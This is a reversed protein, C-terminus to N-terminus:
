PSKYIESKLSKGVSNEPESSVGFGITIRERIKKNKEAIFLWIVLFIIIITVAIISWFIIKGVSVSDSIEEDGVIITWIKSDVGTAGSIEVKVEYTGDDLDGAEYQTVESAVLVDDLYWRISNYNQPNISFNKGDGSFLNYSGAVPNSSIIKTNNIQPPTPTTQNTQDTQNTQNIVVSLGTYNYVRVEIDYGVEEKNDDAYIKFISTGLYGRMSSLTLITDNRSISINQTTLDGTFNDYRYILIDGDDDEFCYSMNVLVTRTNNVNISFDDCRSKFDPANNPIPRDLNIFEIYFTMNSGSNSYDLVDGSQLNINIEESATLNFEYVGYRDLKPDLSVLNTTKNIKLGVKGEIDGVIEYSINVLSFFYDDLDVFDLLPDDNYITINPIPKEIQTLNIHVEAFVKVGTLNEFTSSLCNDPVYLITTKNEGFNWNVFMVITVNCDGQSRKFDIFLSNITQNGLSWNINLNVSKNDSALTYNLVDFIVEESDFDWKLSGLKGDLVEGVEGEGGWEIILVVVGVVVLLGLIVLFIKLLKFPLSNRFDGENKLIKKSDKVGGKKRSKKM